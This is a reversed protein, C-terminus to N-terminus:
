KQYFEVDEEWAGYDVLLLDAHPNVPKLRTFTEPPTFSKSGVEDTASIYYQVTDGVAIAPIQGIFTGGEQPGSM